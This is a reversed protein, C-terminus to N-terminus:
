DFRLIFRGGDFRYAYAPGMRTGHRHRPLGYGRSHRHRPPGYGYRHGRRNGYAHRQRKHHRQYKYQRRDRDHRFERRHGSRDATNWSMQRESQGAHRRTGDRGDATAPSSVASAAILATACIAFVSFIRKM